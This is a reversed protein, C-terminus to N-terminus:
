EVHFLIGGTYLLLGKFILCILYLLFVKFRLCLCVEEEIVIDDKTKSVKAKPALEQKRARTAAMGTQTEFLKM